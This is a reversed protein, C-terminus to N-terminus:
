RYAQKLEEVSAGCKLEEVWRELIGIGTVAQKGIGRVLEELEGALEENSLPLQELVQRVKYIIQSKDKKGVHALLGKYDTWGCLKLMRIDSAETGRHRANWYFYRGYAEKVAEIDPRFLGELMADYGNGHGGYYYYGKKWQLNFRNKNELLYEYWRQDIGRELTKVPDTYGAYGSPVSRYVVYKGLHEEYKVHSFIQLIEGPDSKRGGSEKAPDMAEEPKLYAGFRDFVEEPEDNLLAGWFVCGLFGDGHARYMDEAVRRLAPSEPDAQRILSNKLIEAAKWPVVKYLREYCACMKPSHKGEARSLLELLSAQDEKKLEKWRINSADYTDLWRNIHDAMLDSAWEAPSHVLYAGWKGPNKDMQKRWYGAAEEGEMAALSFYAAEKANGKESKVLNLLLQENGQDHRLAKIAAERVPKGATQLVEKYFDNEEKGALEEIVSIRRAMDQKGEPDFDQKLLPIFERGEEKLWEAVMEALEGYSDGLARVMLSKMRYDSFLRPNQQRADRLVAYRGGGTGEFAELVPAMQSYPVNVCVTGASALDKAPEWQGEKLLSGQTCLVADVLALVDLLLAGREEKGAETLLCGMQYIRGFVPSAKALPEMQEVARKLRFDEGLLGVGAVAVAELRDRLEYIVGLNM